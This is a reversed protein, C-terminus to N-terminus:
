LQSYPLPKLFVRTIDNMSKAYEEVKIIRQWEPHVLFKSWGEAHAEMDKLALMYTLCPMQDGAINVGFFLMPLGADAFIPFEADNFMKVKRRLADENASEYIRLEFLNAEEDPKVLKPFGTSSRILSTSIRKYPIVDDGAVLYDHADKLYQSDQALADQSDQFAQINAYAVLLYIKKPLADGAEEFAGINQIGQRNLAPILADKFYNHLVDASRFFELEYTRFEYVEEQAYTTQLCLFIIILFSFIRIKM